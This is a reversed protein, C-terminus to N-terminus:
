QNHERGQHKRYTGFAAGVMISGYLLWLGPERLDSWGNGVLFTGLMLVTACISTTLILERALSM